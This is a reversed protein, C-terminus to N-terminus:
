VSLKMLFLNCIAITYISSKSSKLIGYLQLIEMIINHSLNLKKLNRLLTLEPPLIGELIQGDLNLEYIQELVSANKPDIMWERIPVAAKKLDKKFQYHSHIHPINLPAKCDKPLKKHTANWIAGLTLDFTERYKEENLSELEKLTISLISGPFFKSSLYRIYSVENQFNDSLSRIRAIEKRYMCPFSLTSRFLPTLCHRKIGEQVHQYWKKCVRMLSFQSRQGINEHLIDIQIDQPLNEFKVTAITM